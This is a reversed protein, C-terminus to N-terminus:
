KPDEENLQSKVQVAFNPDTRLAEVVRDRTAEDPCIALLRGDVDLTLACSLDLSESREAANASGPVEGNAVSQDGEAVADDMQNREEETEEM